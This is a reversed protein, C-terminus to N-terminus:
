VLCGAARVKQADDLPYIPRQVRRFALKREDLSTINPADVTLIHSCILRWASRYHVASKLVIIHQDLPEIGNSRFAEEDYTQNRATTVICTIGEFQLVATKGCVQLVGKCMPGKVRYYGDSLSKVYADTEIPAGVKDSSKGGLRVHITAGPGAAFAQQVTEPDWISSVAVREAKQRLLEHIIETADGMLGSGPNDAADALVTLGDYALAEAVAQGPEMTKLEYDELHAYVDECYRECIEEALQENNETLAYICAGQVSIDGRAFGAAFSAAYVDQKESEAELLPVLRKLGGEDSPIHPYILRMQKMAATPHAKGDLIALLMEAAEIGREYFDTHPYYRAIFLASSLRVMEPTLNAHFDLTAVIPLTPGVASRIKKLLEGEGDETDQTIQAGHLTLAIGAIPEAEGREAKEEEARYSSLIQETIFAFVERTVPGGPCANADVVPIMKVDERSGFVEIFGGMESETGRFRTIIDQGFTLSRAKFDDLDTPKPNFSNSEHKFGAILIRKM